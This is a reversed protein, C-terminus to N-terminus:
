NSKEYEDVVVYFHLDLTIPWVDLIEPPTFYMPMRPTLKWADELLAHIAEPAPQVNNLPHIVPPFQQAARRMASYYCAMIGDLADKLSRGQACMDYELGQALWSGNEEFLLITLKISTLMSMDIETGL